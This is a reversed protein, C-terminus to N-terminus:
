FLDNNLLKPIIDDIDYKPKWNLNKKIKTNDCFVKKVENTRKYKQNNITYFSNDIKRILFIKKIVYDLSVSKGTSILYDNRKKANNMKFIAEVFDPAWGWDRHVNTNGMILKKKNNFNNVYNVIKKTVFNESRLISEHNSVIGSVCKVNFFDRYYKVLWYASSKARGYPSVPSFTTKENCTRTKGGFCDTSSSNYIKISLKKKRCIELIDLLIVLNSKYADIPSLFSKGVSSLGSLIYVQSPKFELIKSIILTKGDEKYKILKIQNLLDLKKLNKLNNKVLSRTFGVVKFNKKKLYHALYAGDQGTVGVIFAIKKKM